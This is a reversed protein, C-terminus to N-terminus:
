HANGVEDTRQRSPTRAVSSTGALLGLGLLLSGLAVWRLHRRERDCAKYQETRGYGGDDAAVVFPSGCRFSESDFTGSVPFFGMFLGALLLLTAVTFPVIQIKRSRPTPSM